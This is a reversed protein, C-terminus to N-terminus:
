EGSGEYVETGPHFAAWAFWFHFPLPPIAAPLPTGPPSALAPPAALAFAAALLVTVISMSFLAKSM